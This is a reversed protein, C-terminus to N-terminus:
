LLFLKLNHAAALVIVLRVSDIDTTSAYSKTYDIGETTRSSDACLRCKLEYIHDVDTINIEFSIHPPPPIKYHSPFHDRPIPCSLTNYSHIKDYVAYNCEIWHSRLKDKLAM